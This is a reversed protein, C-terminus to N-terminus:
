ASNIIPYSIVETWDGATGYGSYPPIDKVDNDTSIESDEWWFVKINNTGSPGYNLYFNELEHTEHLDWCPGCTTTGVDVIVAKGADLYEFLNHTNGNMDEEIFNVLQAHSATCGILALITIGQKM